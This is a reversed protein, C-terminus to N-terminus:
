NLFLDSFNSYLSNLSTISTVLQFSILCRCSIFNMNDIDIDYNIMEKREYVKKNKIEYGIIIVNSDFIFEFLKSRCVSPPKFIFFLQNISNTIKPFFVSRWSM